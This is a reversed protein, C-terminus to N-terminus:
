KVSLRGKMTPHFSCVYDFEGPESPTYQWSQNPAISGSDFLGGSTATHPFLDKNIWVITDGANVTLDGPQFTTSDITVTHTVPRSGCAAAGASVSLLLALVAARVALPRNLRDPTM